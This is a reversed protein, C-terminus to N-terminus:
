LRTYVTNDLIDLNAYNGEDELNMIPELVCLATTKGSIKLVNDKIKTTWRYKELPINMEFLTRAMNEDEAVFDMIEDPTNLNPIESATTFAIEWTVPINFRYSYVEGLGPEERTTLAKKWDIDKDPNAAAIEQSLALPGKSQATPYFVYYPKALYHETYKGGFINFYPSAFLQPLTEKNFVGQLQKLLTSNDGLGCSHFIIKTDNTVTNISKNKTNAVYENLAKETIRDGDKKTKLSMGRWPNSHSM